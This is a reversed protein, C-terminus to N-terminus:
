FVHAITPTLLYNMLNQIFSFKQLYLNKPRQLLILSRASQILNYSQKEIYLNKASQTNSIYHENKVSTKFYIGYIYKM